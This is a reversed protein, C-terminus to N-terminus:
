KCIWCLLFPLKGCGRSRMGTGGLFMCHTPWQIIRMRQQGLIFVLSKNLDLILNCYPYNMTVYKHVETAQVPHCFLHSNWCPLLLLTTHDLGRANRINRCNKRTHKRLFLRFFVSKRETSTHLLNQKRFCSAIGNWFDNRHNFLQNGRQTDPDISQKLPNISTRICRSFEKIMTKRIINSKPSFEEKLKEPSSHCRSIGARHAIGM